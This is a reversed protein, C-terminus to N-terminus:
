SFRGASARRNDEIRPHQAIVTTRDCGLTAALTDYAISLDAAILALISRHVDTLPANTPANRAPELGVLPQLPAHTGIM